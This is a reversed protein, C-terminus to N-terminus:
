NDYVLRGITHNNLEDGGVRSFNAGGDASYLVGIGAYSDSSTNAEGTGVWLGHSPDIALAGISLTPSADTLPQWSGNGVKKWVGGDAAGAFITSGDLAVATMRGAVHQAGGGSNSWVPDRYGQPDSDYPVATRETWTGPKVAMTKYVGYAQTFAGADVTDAPATRAEAYQDAQELVEFNGKAAETLKREASRGPSGGAFVPTVTFFLGFAVLAGSVAVWLRWRPSAKVRDGGLNRSARGERGPQP